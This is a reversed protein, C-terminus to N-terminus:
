RRRRAHASRTCGDRWRGSAPGRSEACCCRRTTLRRARWWSSCGNCAHRSPICTSRPGRMTSAPACFRSPKADIVRRSAVREVLYQIQAPAFPKALYDHAGRRMAEVATEISAFGTMVVVDTAVHAALPPLLDLGNDKGLRLDLLALDYTRRELAARVAPANTAEDVRCGLAELCVRVTRRVSKEDDIVLVDLGAAM